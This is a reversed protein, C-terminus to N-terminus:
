VAKHFRAPSLAEETLGAEAFIDPLHIGRALAATAQALAPATMIGAGGQGALWFFGDIEPAFGVVPRRDPAFTRLGAWRHSIRRVERGTAREFREVSIAVDLEEPQADAPETPTEDGRSAMIKGSEPKFYWEEGVHLVLPWRRVDDGQEPNILVATRRLPQIGLAHAGAMEGIHAAWAGAANIIIPATFSSERVSARWVGHARQLAELKCDTFLLGGRAKFGRLYGNLLADVDIDVADPDWVGSWNRRKDLAPCIGLTEEGYIKRSHSALPASYNAFRELAEVETEDGVVLSGRPTLLPHEGFFSPPTSFFRRAIRTLGSIEKEGYADILMAASRGTSHRAPRDEMEILATPGYASLEFAASVGTMGAGVVLYEFSESNM